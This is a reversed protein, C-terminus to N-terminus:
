SPQSPPHLCSSYFGRPLALTGSISPLMTPVTMPPQMTVHASGGLDLVTCTFFLNTIVTIFYASM